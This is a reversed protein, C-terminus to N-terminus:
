RRTNPDSAIVAVGDAEEQLEGTTGVDPVVFQINVPVFPAYAGSTQPKGLKVEDLVAKLAEADEGDVTITNQGPIGATLLVNIRSGSDEITFHVINALNVLRDGIWIFNDM